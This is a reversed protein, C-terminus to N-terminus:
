LYYHNWFPCSGVLGLIVFATFAHYLTVTGLPLLILQMWTSRAQSCYRILFIVFATFIRLLTYDGLFLLILGILTLGRRPPSSIVPATLGGSPAPVLHSPRDARPRSPEPRADSREEQRKHPSRLKLESSVFSTSKM